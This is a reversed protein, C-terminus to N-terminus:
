MGNCVESDLISSHVRVQSPRDQLHASNWSGFSRWPKSGDAILMDVSSGASIAGGVKTRWSIHLYFIIMTESILTMLCILDLYCTM